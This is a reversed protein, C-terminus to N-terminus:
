IKGVFRRAAKTQKMFHLSYGASLLFCQSAFSACIWGSNQIKYPSSPLRNFPDSSHSNAARRPTHFLQSSEPTMIWQM